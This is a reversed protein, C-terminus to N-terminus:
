IGFVTRIDISIEIEKEISQDLNECGGFERKLMVLFHCQQLWGDVRLFPLVSIM